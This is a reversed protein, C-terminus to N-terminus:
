KLFFPCSSSSHKNKPHMHRKSYPQLNSEVILAIKSPCIKTSNISALCWNIACYLCCHPISQIFHSYHSLLMNHNVSSLLVLTLMLSILMSISCDISYLQLPVPIRSSSLSDICIPLSRDLPNSPTNSSHHRSSIIRSLQLM